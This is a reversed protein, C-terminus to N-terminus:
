FMNILLHAARPHASVRSGPVSKRETTNLEGPAMGNSGYYSISLRIGNELTASFSGFKSVAKNKANSDESLYFRILSMEM